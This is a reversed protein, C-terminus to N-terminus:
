NGGGNMRAQMAARMAAIEDASLAGDHNTDFRDLLRSPAALFEAQSVKGDHNTDDDTMMQQARPGAAQAEDTSIFGDHNADAQQFQAVRMDHIESASLAGDHNTDAQMLRDMMGGPGGPPPGSPAQAFVAGASLAVFAFASIALRMKQM